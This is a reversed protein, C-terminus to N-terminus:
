LKIENLFKIGLRRLDNMKPKMEVGPREFLPTAKVTEASAIVYCDPLAIHLQKKLKGARIAIDEDIDVVQARSKIWHVFDLAERNPDAIKATEYIRSTVYLIESLTVVNVHLKVKETLAKDLLKSVKPRYPSRQVIYDILVSTDPVLKEVPFL